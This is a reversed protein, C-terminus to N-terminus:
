FALYYVNCAGSESGGKVWTLTFGGSDFSKLYAQQNGGSSGNLSISYGTTNAWKMVTDIYSYTVGHNNVNDVGFSTSYVDNSRGLFIIGKPKFGLGTYGVDANGDSLDRTFTGVVPTSEGGNALPLIGTVMTTLDVKAATTVGTTNFVIVNDATAASFDQGTGGYGTAIATGHWTGSTITNLATINSGDSILRSTIGDHYHGSTTSFKNEFYNFDANVENADAATGNTFSYPVAAYSLPIQLSFM